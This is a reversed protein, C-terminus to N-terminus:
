LDGADVLGKRLMEEMLIMESRVDHAGHNNVKAKISDDYYHRCFEQSTDIDFGFLTPKIGSLICRLVIKMGTRTGGYQLRSELGLTELDRNATYYAITSGPGSEVFNHILRTPAAEQLYRHTLYQQNNANREEDNSHFTLLAAQPFFNHIHRANEQRAQHKQAETADAIPVTYKENFLYFIDIGIAQLTTKSGVQQEFGDTLAGNFRIVDDFGDIQEGFQGDRLRSSSGVIATKPSLRLEPTVAVLPLSHQESSM